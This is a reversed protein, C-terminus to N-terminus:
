NYSPPYRLKILITDYLSFIFSFCQTCSYAINSTTERQFFLIQYYISFKLNLFNSTTTACTLGEEKYNQMKTNGRLVRIYDLCLFFFFIYFYVIIKSLFFVVVTTRKLGSKLLEVLFIAQDLTKQEVSESTIVATDVQKIALIMWEVYCLFTCLSLVLHAQSNYIKGIDMKEQFNENYNKIFGHVHLQCPAIFVNEQIFWIRNNINSFINHFHLMKYCM